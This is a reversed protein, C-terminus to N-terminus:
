AMIAVLEYSPGRASWVLDGTGPDSAYLHRWDLPRGPVNDVCVFGREPNEEDAVRLFVSGLRDTDFFPLAYHTVTGRDIERGQYRISIMTGVQLAEFFRREPFLETSRQADM